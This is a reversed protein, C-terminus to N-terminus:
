SVTAGGSGKLVGYLSVTSYQVFNGAGPALTIQNIASTGSWSEAVIQHDATTANNENMGEVMFNKAAGGAYNPIYITVSNFTSATADSPNIVLTANSDTYSAVSSGDAYLMTRTYTSSSGNFRITGFGGSSARATNSRLSAVLVLDTYSAPISTLDISAAGAAGVTSTAILSMAM